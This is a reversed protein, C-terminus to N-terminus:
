FDTKLIKFTKKRKNEVELCVFYMGKQWNTADFSPEQNDGKQWTQEFVLVGLANYVHVMRKKDSDPITIKFIHNGYSPSVAYTVSDM